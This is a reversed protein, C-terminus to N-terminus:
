KTAEAKAKENKIQKWGVVCLASIARSVSIDAHYEQKIQTMYEDIAQAAEDTYYRLQSNGTYASTRRKM